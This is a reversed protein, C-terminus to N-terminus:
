AIGSALLASALPLDEQRTIKLNTPAGAVVAVPEGLHEVLSVDDTGSFGTAAAHAFARLLLDRRIVQPTQALWIGARDVTAAVCDDRVRKLTDPAPIALLAAGRREAAQVCARTAEVPLLARAADHVLVFDATPGAAALGRQMSEQRSDGGDTFRVDGLAMLAPLLPRLHTDRDEPHVVVVLQSGDRLPVARALREAAHLVLPKGQLPLYAKPVPGGFRSGRGAALLLM